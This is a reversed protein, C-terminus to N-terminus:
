KEAFNTEYTPVGRSAIKALPTIRLHPSNGSTPPSRGKAGDVLNATRSRVKTMEANCKSRGTSGLDLM